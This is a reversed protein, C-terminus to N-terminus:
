TRYTKVDDAPQARTALGPLGGHGPMVVTCILSAAAFILSWPGPLLVILQYGGIGAIFRLLRRLLRLAPSTGEPTFRLRVTLDGPTRGTGLTILATVAFPAWVALYGGSGDAGTFDTSASELDFGDHRLLEVCVSTIVALFWVTLLDCIMGLVRRGATVATRREAQAANDRRTASGGSAYYALAALIAGGLAGLTNALVDDVDLYRYACPYIGWVGTYQTAEIACSIAFGLLTTVVVGRHFLWRMLIGLPAFLAVNLAFQMFGWNHLLERVSSHPRTRIDDLFHLPTLQPSVCQLHNPDPLPLLTYTWLAMAYVLFAVWTITRGLTLRGNRRYNVFVFPVFLLVALGGGITFALVAAHLQNSM